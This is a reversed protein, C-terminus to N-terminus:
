KENVLVPATMPTFGDAVIKKMAYQLLAQELMVAENKLFYSRFGGIEVAHTTDLLDLSEMIVQHPKPDFGLQKPEGVTRVVINGSEDKGIPVDEAPVNPIQYALTEVKEELEKVQPEIEKLQEKFQKGAEIQEATPRTGSSVNQKITESLENGQRRIEDRKIQLARRQEDATVLEDVVKPDLLKHEAALKVEEAHERVYKLDLM